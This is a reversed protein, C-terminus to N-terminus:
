TGHRRRKKMIIISFLNSNGAITLTKIKIFIKHTLMLNDNRSNFRSISCRVKIIIIILGIPNIIGSIRKRTIRKRIIINHNTSCRMRMQIM